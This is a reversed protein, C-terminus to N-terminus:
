EPKDLVGFLDAMTTFTAQDLIWKLEKYTCNTKVTLAEDKEMLIVVRDAGEVQSLSEMLVESSPREETNIM